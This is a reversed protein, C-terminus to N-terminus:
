SSERFMDRTAQKLSQLQTRQEESLSELEHEALDKGWASGQSAAAQSAAAQSTQELQSAYSEWAAFFHPLFEPKASKHARWESKLYADGISRMEAPLATRHLRFCRRYLALIQPKTYSPMASAPLPPTAGFDVPHALEASHRFHRQTDCDRSPPIKSTYGQGIRVNLIGSCNLDCSRDLEAIAKRQYAAM